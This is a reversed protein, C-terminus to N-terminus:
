IGGLKKNCISRCHCAIDWAELLIRRCDKETKKPDENANTHVEVSIFPKRDNFLKSELMSILLRAIVELTLFGPSGVPMHYDGYLKDERDLIANSLHIQFIHERSKIISEMMDEGCLVTHASDWSIGIDPYIRKVRKILSVAEDTPGILRNKHIGRDLPEIILNMQPYQKMYDLLECLSDFLADTATLRYDQGPDHGSILSITKVGTECGSDILQKIREVSKERLPKNISSIDLKEDNLVPTLWQTLHIHNEYVNKYLMRRAKVSKIPYIEAAKYFGEEAIDTITDVVLKENRLYPFFVECFLISPKFEDELRM